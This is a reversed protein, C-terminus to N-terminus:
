GNLPKWDMKNHLVDCGSVWYPLDGNVGWFLESGNLCPHELLKKMDLNVNM